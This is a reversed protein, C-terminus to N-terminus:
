EDFFGSFFDTELFSRLTIYSDRAGSPIRAGNFVKPSGEAHGRESYRTYDSWNILSVDGPPAVYLGPVMFAHATSGTDAELFSALVWLSVPLTAVLRLM